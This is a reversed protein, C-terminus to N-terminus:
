LDDLNDIDSELDDEIDIKQDKPKAEIKKAAKAPRFAQADGVSPKQLYGNKVITKNEEEEQTGKKKKFWEKIVDSVPIFNKCIEVFDMRKKSLSNYRLYIIIILAFIIAFWIFFTYPNEKKKVVNTPLLSTTPTVFKTTSKTSEESSESPSSDASTDDSPASTESSDVIGAGGSSTESASETTTESSSESSESTETVAPTPTETPVPTDTPKTTPTPTDTPKPTPTDTPKPTPTNTPATTPTATGAGTPTPTRTPKPTSTPTNTPVPTPTDTPVPTPTDTPAPTPTDTPVPTPTNPNIKNYIIKDLYLSAGDSVDATVTITAPQIPSGDKTKIHVNISDSECSTGVSLSQSSSASAKASNVTAGDGAVRLIIYAENKEGGGDIDVTCTTSAAFVQPALVGFTGILCIVISLFLSFVKNNRTVKM